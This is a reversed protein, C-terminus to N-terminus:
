LVESSKNLRTYTAMYPLNVSLLVQLARYEREKFINSVGSLIGRPIQRPLFPGESIIKKRSAINGM